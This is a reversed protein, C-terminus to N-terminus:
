GLHISNHVRTMISGVHRVVTGIQILMRPLHLHVRRCEMSVGSELVIAAGAKTASLTCTVDHRINVITRAHCKVTKPPSVNNWIGKVTPPQLPQIPANVHYTAINPYCRLLSSPITGEAGFRGTLSGLMERM